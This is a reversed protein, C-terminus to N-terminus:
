SRGSGGSRARGRGRVGARAPARLRRAKESASAALRRAELLRPDGASRVNDALTVSASRAAAAALQVAAYADSRLSPNGHEAMEVALGIVEAASRVVSLPTEVIHERAPAILKERQETHLGRADRVAQMYDAFAAVDADILLTALKRVVAARKGINAAGMWHQTSLRAAKEVLGAAM